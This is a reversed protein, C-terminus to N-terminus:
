DTIFPYDEQVYNNDYLESALPLDSEDAFKVAAAIEDIITNEIKEIEEITAIKGKIMKDKIIEIPDLAKYKNLEDKTRYKAPDSVSHGRYRYTKIELFYPGKGSRIHKAAKEVAIHVAEPDMGDVAESPMDFASGIKFLDTVNSTREVSTGMAYQNNEVIYLVPIKWKM